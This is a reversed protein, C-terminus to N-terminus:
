WENFSRGVGQVVELVHHPGAAVEPEVVLLGNATNTSVVGDAGEYGSPSTVASQQATVTGGPDAKLAPLEFNAAQLM